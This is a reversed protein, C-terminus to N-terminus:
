RRSPLRSAQMTGSGCTCARKMSSMGDSTGHPLADKEDARRTREAATQRRHQCPMGPDLQNKCRAPRIRQFSQPSRKQLGARRGFDRDQREVACARVSQVPDLRPEHDIRGARKLPAVIRQGRRRHPRARMVHVKRVPAIIDGAKGGRQVLGRPLRAHEGHRRCAGRRREGM